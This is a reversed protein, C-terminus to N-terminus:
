EDARDWAELRKVAYRRLLEDDDPEPVRDTDEVDQKLRMTSRRNALFRRVKDAESHGEGYNDRADNLAKMSQLNLRQTELLYKNANDVANVMQLVFGVAGFLLVGALIKYKNKDLEEQTPPARHYKMQYYDNWTAAHWFAEDNKFAYRRRHANARRHAEFNERSWAGKKDGFYEGQQEWSTTQYRNYAIRRRPNKLIDYSEQIMDFRERKVEPTIEKGDQTLALSTDPHYIKVLALYRKKLARNMELPSMSMDDNSFGFIEYATPTKSKPWDHLGLRKHHDTPDESPDAATAYRCRQPLSRCLTVPVRTRRIYALM